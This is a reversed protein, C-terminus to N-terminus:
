KCGLAALCQAKGSGASNCAACASANGTAQGGVPLKPSVMMQSQDQFTVGAPLDFQASDESWSQCNYNIQQNIDASRPTKSISNPTSSSNLAMKFGMATGSGEVWTYSTQDKIIMHTQMTRGEIQSSFDGRMNGGAIYTTGTSTNGNSTFSSDCKLSKGLALLDKFSGQGSTAATVQVQTSDKVEQQSTTASKGCGAALLVLSASVFLIKKM